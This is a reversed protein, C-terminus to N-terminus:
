DYYEQAEQNQLYTFCSHPHDSSVDVKGCIPCVQIKNIDFPELKM